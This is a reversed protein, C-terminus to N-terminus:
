ELVRFLSGLEMGSLASMLEAGPMARTLFAVEDAPAGPRSLLAPMWGPPAYRKPPGPAASM